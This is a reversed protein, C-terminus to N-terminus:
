PAFIRCYGANSDTANKRRIHKNRWPPDIVVINFKRRHVSLPLKSPLQEFNCNYFECCEPVLYKQNEYDIIIPYTNQNCGHFDLPSSQTFETQKYVEVAANVAFANNYGNLPCSRNFIAADQIKSKKVIDDFSKQM